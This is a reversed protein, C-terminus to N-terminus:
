VVCNLTYTASSLEKSRQIYIKGETPNPYVQIGIDDFTEQTEVRVCPIQSTVLHFSNKGIKKESVEIIMDM